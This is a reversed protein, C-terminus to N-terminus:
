VKLSTITRLKSGSNYESADRDLQDRLKAFGDTKLPSLRKGHSLKPNSSPIKPIDFTEPPPMNPLSFEPLPPLDSSFTDPISMANSSNGTYVSKQVVQSFSSQPQRYQINETPNQQFNQQSFNVSQQPPTEYRPEPPADGFIHSEMVRRKNQSAYEGNPGGRAIWAQM